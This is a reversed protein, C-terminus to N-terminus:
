RSEIVFFFLVNPKCVTSIGAVQVNESDKQVGQFKTTCLNIQAKYIM